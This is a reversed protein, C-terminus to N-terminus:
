EEKEERLASGALASLRALCSRCLRVHARDARIDFVDTGPTKNSAGCAACSCLDRDPTVRSVALADNNDPM